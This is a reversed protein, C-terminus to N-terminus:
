RMFIGATKLFFSAVHPLPHCGLVFCKRNSFASGRPDRPYLKSQRGGTCGPFKVYGLFWPIETTTRLDWVGAICMWVGRKQLTWHNKPYSFIPRVQGLFSLITKQLMKHQLPSSNLIESTYYDTTSPLLYRLGVWPTITRTTMYFGPPVLSPIGPLKRFQFESSSKKSTIYPYILCTWWTIYIYIYRSTWSWLLSLNKPHDM